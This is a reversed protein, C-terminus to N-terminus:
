SQARSRWQAESLGYVQTWETNRRTKFIQWFQLWEDPLPQRTQAATIPTQLSKIIGNGLQVCQIFVRVLVARKYHLQEPIIESYTGINIQKTIHTHHQLITKTLRSQSPLLSSASLQHYNPVLFTNDLIDSKTTWFWWNKQLIQELNRIQM